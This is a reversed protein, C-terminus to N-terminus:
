KKPKISIEFNVLAVMFDEINMANLESYTKSGSKAIESMLSDWFLDVNNIM